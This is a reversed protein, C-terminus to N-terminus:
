QFHNNCGQKVAFIGSKLLYAECEDSMDEDTVDLKKPDANDDSLKSEDFNM